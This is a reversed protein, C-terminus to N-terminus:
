RGHKGAINRGGKSSGMQRQLTFNFIWEPTIYDNISVSSVLFPDGRTCVETRAKRRRHHRRGANKKTARELYTKFQVSDPNKKFFGLTKGGFGGNKDDFLGARKGIM